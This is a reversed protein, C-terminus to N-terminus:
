AFLPERIIFEWPSVMDGVPVEILGPENSMQPEAIGQTSNERGLIPSRCNM